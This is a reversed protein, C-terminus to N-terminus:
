AASSQRDRQSRYQGIAEEIIDPLSLGSESAYERMWRATETTIKVTLQADRPVRNRVVRGADRYQSSQGSRDFGQERAITQVDPTATPAPRSLAAPRTPLLKRTSVIEDM